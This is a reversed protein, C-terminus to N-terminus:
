TSVTLLPKPLLDGIAWGNPLQLEQKQLKNFEEPTIEIIVVRFHIGREPLPGFWLPMIGTPITSDSVELLKIPEEPLTERGLGSTLRFIQQMEPEIQYHIEALKRAEEDKNLM